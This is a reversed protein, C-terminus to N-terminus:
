RGAKMAGLAAKVREAVVATFERTGLTGGIDATKEGSAIADRIAGRLAKGAEREGVHRV